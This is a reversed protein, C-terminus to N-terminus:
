LDEPSGAPTPYPVLEALKRVIEETTDEWIRSSPESIDIGHHAKLYEEVVIRGQPLNVDSISCEWEICECDGDPRNGRRDALCM